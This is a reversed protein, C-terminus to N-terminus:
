EVTLVNATTSTKNENKNGNAEIESVKASGSVDDDQDEAGNQQSDLGRASLRDKIKHILAVPAIALSSSLDMKVTKRAGKISLELVGPGKVDLAATGWSISQEHSIKTSAQFGLVKM